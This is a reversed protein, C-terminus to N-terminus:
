RGNLLKEAALVLFMYHSSGGGLVYETQQWLYPFVLLEPLDPRIIATGSIVGGPVYSWDARTTVTYEVVADPYVMPNFGTLHRSSDPYALTAVIADGKVERSIQRPVPQWQGPTAEFRLDGNTAVRNGNMIVCVGGQHGEPYFDYFAMVDVGENRFYGEPGIRFDQCVGRLAPLVLLLLPLLFKKM